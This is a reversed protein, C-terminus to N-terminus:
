SGYHSIIEEGKKWEEMGLREKERETKKDKNKRGEVERKKRRGKKWRRTGIESAM